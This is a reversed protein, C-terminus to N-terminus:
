VIGRAALDACRSCGQATRQWGCFFCSWTAAPDDPRHELRRKMGALVARAAAPDAIPESTARLRTEHAAYERDAADQLVAQRLGLLRQHGRANDWSLALEVAFHRIRVPDYGGKLLAKIQGGVIRKLKEDPAPIARRDLADMLAKLIAYGTGPKRPFGGAPTQSAFPTGGDTRADTNDTPVHGGSPHRIPPPTAM